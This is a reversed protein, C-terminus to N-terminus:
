FVTKYNNKERSAKYRAVGTRIKQKLYDILTDHDDEFYMSDIEDLLVKDTLEVSTIFMMKYDKYLEKRWKYFLKSAYKKDNKILPEIDFGSARLIDNPKKGSALERLAWRKFDKSYRFRTKTKTEEMRCWFIFFERLHIRVVTSHDLTMLGAALRNPFLKKM